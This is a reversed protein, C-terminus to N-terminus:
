TTRSDDSPLLASFDGIECTIGFVNRLLTKLTLFTPSLPPPPLSRPSRVRRGGAVGGITSVTKLKINSLHAM